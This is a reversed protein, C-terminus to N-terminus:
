QGRGVKGLMGASVVGKHEEKTLAPTEFEYRVACILADTKSYLSLRNLSELHQQDMQTGHAIM